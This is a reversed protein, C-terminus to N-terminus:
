ELFTHWFAIKHWKKQVESTKGDTKQRLEAAIYYNAFIGEEYEGSLM